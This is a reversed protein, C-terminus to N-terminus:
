EATEEEPESSLGEKMEETECADGDVELDCTTVSCERDGDLCENAAECDTIDAGCQEYLDAAYKQMLVYYYEETCEDDECGIFCEQTTPDCEGEYAVVYDHSAIFRVYSATGLLLVIPVLTYFLIHNRFHNM